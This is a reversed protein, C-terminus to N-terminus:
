CKKGGSALRAERSHDQRAERSHDQRTKNFARKEVIAGIVDLDRADALQVIGRLAAALAKGLKQLDGKRHHEMAFSICIVLDFLQQSSNEASTRFHRRFVEPTLADFSDGVGEAYGAGVFDFIRIATDALEVEFMERHPLKDDMIRGAEGQAAESIETVVLMLLEGVNREIREGTALDSWWGAAVNDAFIEASLRTIDAGTLINPM